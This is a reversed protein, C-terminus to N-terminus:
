PERRARVKEPQIIAILVKPCEKGTAPEFIIGGDLDM